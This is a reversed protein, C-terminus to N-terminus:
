TQLASVDTNIHTQQLLSVSDRASIIGKTKTFPLPLSESRLAASQTLVVLSVHGCGICSIVCLPSPAISYVASYCPHPLESTKLNPSILFYYGSFNFCRDILGFNRSFELLELWLHYMHFVAIFVHVSEKRSTPNPQVWCGNFYKPRVRGLGSATLSEM